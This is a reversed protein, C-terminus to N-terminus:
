DCPWEQEIRWWGLFISRWRYRDMYYPPEPTTEGSLTGFGCWSGNRRLRTSM